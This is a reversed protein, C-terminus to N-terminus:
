ISWTWRNRAMRFDFIVVLRDIYYKGKIDICCYLSLPAIFIVLRVENNNNIVHHFTHTQPLRLKSSLASTSWHPLTCRRVLTKLWSSRSHQRENWVASLRTWLVTLRCSTVHSYIIDGFRDSLRELRSVVLCVLLNDGIFLQAKLFDTFISNTWKWFMVMWQLTYRELLKM